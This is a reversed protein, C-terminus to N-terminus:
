EVLFITASPIRELEYCGVDVTDHDIRPRGDLDTTGSMWASTVGADRVASKRLSHFDGNAPDAFLPDEIASLGTPFDYESLCNVFCKTSTTTISGNLLFAKNYHWVNTTGNATTTASGINSHILTNVVLPNDAGYIYIGGARYGVTNAAITCNTLTASSGELYVGGGYYGRNGQILCNDVHGKQLFLGGGQADYGTGADNGDIICRTVHGRSGLVSVGGGHKDTVDRRNDTVRCDALTGGKEGVLVGAGTAGAPLRLRGGSITVGRVSANAHDITLVRSPPADQSLRLATRERGDGTVAVADAIIVENTLTYEGERIQIATGGIALPMVDHLSAAATAPTAYPFSPLSNTAVYLSAVGVRVIDAHSIAATRGHDTASLSASIPGPTALAVVLPSDGTTAYNTSIGLHDTITWTCSPVGESDAFTPTFTATEGVWLTARDCTFNCTFIGARRELCGLDFAAGQPRQVGMADTTSQGDLAIGADIAPSDGQLSYDGSSPASLLFDAVRTGIAGDLSLNHSSTIAGRTNSYGLINNTFASSNQYNYLDMGQGSGGSSTNDVVTCGIVVSHGTNECYVGGGWQAGNGYVLCTDLIGGRLYAGGGEANGAVSVNNALICRRAAGKGNIALGIGHRGSATDSCDTVACDELSGGQSDILVGGGYNPTGFHGGSPIKGDAFTMGRVVAEANNIYLLRTAVGSAPAVRVADRGNLGVLTIASTVEIPASVEYTGDTVVVTAGPIAAGVADAISHAAKAWSDYPFENSGAASVYNTAAGTKFAILQVCTATAPGDLVRLRVDYDGAMSPSLALPEDVSKEFDAFTANPAIITWICRASNSAGSVASTLHVATGSLISTKDPSFSASLANACASFCGIDPPSGHQSGYLDNALPTAAGAGIAASGPALRYDGAAPALFLTASYSINADGTTSAACHSYYPVGSKGSYISAIACNTVAPNGQWYYLDNADKYSANGAITCNVMQIAGNNVYVGGGWQGINDTVLCNEMLGGKDFHVGGGWTSTGSNGDIRCRRISGNGNVVFVGAGNGSTITCCTVRSDALTGGATDIRVGTGGTASTADRVTVGRLTAEAHNILVARFGSSAPRIITKMWDQGDVTVGKTISLTSNLTHIGPALLVIDGASAANVAAQITAFPAEATGPNSDDGIPSVHLVAAYLAMPAFLLAIAEHISITAIKM